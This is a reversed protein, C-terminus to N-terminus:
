KKERQYFQDIVSDDSNGLQSCRGACCVFLWPCSYSLLHVPSGDCLIASNCRNNDRQCLDLQDIVSDGSNGLQSCCVFLWPRSDLFLHVPEAGGSLQSLEGRQTMSLESVRRRDM